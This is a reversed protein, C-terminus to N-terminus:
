QELDGVMIQNDSSQRHNQREVNIVKELESTQLDCTKQLKHVLACRIVLIESNKTKLPTQFSKEHQIKQQKQGDQKIKDMKKNLEYENPSPLFTSEEPRLFTLIKKCCSVVGNFITDISQKANEFSNNNEELSESTKFSPYQIKSPYQM